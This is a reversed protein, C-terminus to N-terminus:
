LEERMSIREHARLIRNAASWASRAKPDEPRTRLEAFLERLEDVPKGVEADHLLEVVADGSYSDLVEVARDIDTQLQRPWRYREDMLRVVSSALHTNVAHQFLDALEDDSRRPQKDISAALDTLRDDDLSWSIRSGEMIALVHGVIRAFAVSVLVPDTVEHLIRMREAVQEAIEAVTLGEYDTLYVTPSVYETVM